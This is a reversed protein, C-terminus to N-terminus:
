QPAALMKKIFHPMDKNTVERMAFDYTRRPLDQLNQLLSDSQDETIFSPALKQIEWDTWLRKNRQKWMEFGKDKGRGFAFYAVAVGLLFAIAVDAVSAKKRNEEETSTPRNDGGGAM